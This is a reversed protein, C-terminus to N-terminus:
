GHGINSNLNNFSLNRNKCQDFNMNLNIRNGLNFENNPQNQSTLNIKTENSYQNSYQNYSGEPTHTAPMTNCNNPKVQEQCTSNNVFSPLKVTEVIPSSKGSQFDQNSIPSDTKSCKDKSKPSTKNSKLDEDENDSDKYDLLQDNNLKGKLCSIYRSCFEACLSNVKELEFLQIRLVSIYNILLKDVQNLLIKTNQNSLPNNMGVKLKLSQEYQMFYHRIKFDINPCNLKEIGLTVKDCTTFLFKVLPFLFHQSITCKDQFNKQDVASLNAVLPKINNMMLNNNFGLNLLNTGFIDFNNAFQFNGFNNFNNQVSNCIMNNIPLQQPLISNFM